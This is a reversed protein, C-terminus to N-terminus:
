IKITGKTETKVHQDLDIEGRQYAELWQRIIFRLLSSRSLSYTQIIDEIAAIEGETLGASIAKIKGQDLPSAQPQQDSAPTQGKARPGVSNESFTSKKAM